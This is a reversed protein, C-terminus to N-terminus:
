SKAGEDDRDDGLRQEKVQIAHRIQPQYIEELPNYGIGGRPKKHWYHIWGRRELYLCLRHLGYLLPAAALLGFVCVIADMQRIEGGPM